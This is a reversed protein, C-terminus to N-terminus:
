RDAAAIPLGPQPTLPAPAEFDEKMVYPLQWVQTGGENTFYLHSESYSDANGDAWFAYFDPHANVPRRVYGHNLASNQTVMRVREWHEGQDGSEWLAIEGGAGWRQPGAETPALLRWTGAGDIWLQGVDYNHTSTTIDHYAWTGGRWHATRWTRPNGQPGPMHHHSTLLLVIPNGEADFQLDKIYVMMGESEFDRVLGPGHPDTLPPTLSKGDVTQWTVGFDHTEVYYLNTRKDVSGGPHMNFATGVKKDQYPASFQYHGGMGALKRPPTWTVGDPSTNWYLERGNTYQTFCHIFGKGPIYWPQPYTMEEESIQEFSSIDYPKRSKFKFGPRKRSRGSVFVWVHGKADICLAANDHPDNVGQKDYVITPRPVQGTEHDYYGAMILLHRDHNREGGYVFFTKRAEPAHIAIPRHKATYTGLGGSYKDGYDGKQGLEFWIGQYGQAKPFDESGAGPPFLLFLLAALIAARNCM